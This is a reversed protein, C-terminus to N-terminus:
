LTREIEVKSRPAAPKGDPGGGRGAFGNPSPELSDEGGMFVGPNTFFGGSHCNGISLPQVRKAALGLSLVFLLCGLGYLGLAIFLWASM